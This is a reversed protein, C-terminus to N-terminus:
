WCKDVLDHLNTNSSIEAYYGTSNFETEKVRASLVKYHTQINSKALFTSVTKVFKEYHYAKTFSSSCKRSLHQPQLKANHHSYNPLPVSM